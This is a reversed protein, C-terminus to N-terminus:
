KLASGIYTKPNWKPVHVRTYVRSLQLHLFLPWLNSQDFRDQVMKHCSKVLTRPCESVHNPYLKFTCTPRWLVLLRPRCAKLKCVKDLIWQTFLSIYNVAASALLRYFTLCIICQIWLKQCFLANSMLFALVISYSELTVNFSFQGRDRWFTIAKMGLRVCTRISIHPDQQVPM